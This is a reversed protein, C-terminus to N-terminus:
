GAVAPQEDDAAIWGEFERLMPGLHDRYHRWRGVSSAYIPQRVQWHSATMVMRETAHFTLCAPDWDLGLFDILRRSESELNAVLTEYDIELVPIPLVKRWHEMLRDVQRTRFACDALDDTWVLSGDRFHQFFCSLSVDRPDRRCVVIRARPFLVAIHGLCLINDPQKDIVRVAGGGLGRLHQVYAMSERRVSTRSWFAPHHSGNEFELATLIAFMETQEGAGFVLNHSAAIQEVLSTGSRPMGVIFVPEESPDGWGATAAFTQPDFMAIQRDVLDRFQKRDFIHGQANREVRLLRNALAYAEFAEDYDGQRDCVQGHAFGALARDEVPRSQDNLVTQAARKAADDDHRAGLNVLDHLAGALGPDLALAQRCAEASADFHGLAAECNALLLWLRADPITELVQRCLDAAAAADGTHLLCGAMGYRVRPNGPTLAEVQRFAALAEDFRKVEALSVAFGTLLRPDDPQLALAAEWAEAAQSHDGQRALGSALGIWAEVLGPAAETARRLVDIAGALDERMLLAYGLQVLAVPLTPDLAVAHEAAAVAADANGAARHAGALDALVAAIDPRLALSRTILAVAEAPEGRDLLLVGLLHLAAADDPNRRLVARYIAEAHEPRRAQHHSVAIAVAGAPDAALSDWDDDDEAPVLGALGAILPQLHRRYHRWRGVSSAYLPQRVQWHSATMVTRETEHFALCAPDWDLGLFDILRRSESELNEVLTEYQVELIRSPLVKRWHEMLREVERARFACDALDTPWTLGDERFYQFFCSLGVDRLDRRCVVIRARPFLVAIQGLYLINDPQKDIVRVADGGLSHLHQVHASAERRVSQRDWATAPRRAIQGGDLTAVVNFLEGREGAGFVLKHSAAIQEVLSTGSRPMGVIFVPLESPDGWGTTAAFSRADIEAILRDIRARFQNRDFVRGRAARDDRLLRNALAFADFADDYAGTRDYVKGLAFGAAVRDRVPRSQDYLLDRVADKAADGELRDGMAVLDHLADISRPELALTRRYAEEAADFRGRMAECNALMLWMRPWDPATELAQRCTDVAAATDGTHLLCHAIGYHVRQDSPALCAARRFTALAEEIQELEVLSGACDILLDANDPQLAIATQWAETASARDKVSALAKALAVWADISRPALETARRSVDIAAFSEQQMLLAYGLQVLPDPLEPDIEAARRAADIAAEANGTARHARALSTLAPAVDPRLALSRAILAASEAPQERDLLLVGLLHLATPDDPNRRLLARYIAEAYDLRKARHHLVAISLAAVPEAALADWDADGEIPAVGALGALLPRLHERYHRWRGISSTFLPQRVQWQSATMVARETTHFELCAPDWDLGLFEVLRRSESELDHVLDEYQVELMALPVVKRWHAMLREFAHSRMAIDALSTSWPVNAGFHRQYCSLGVDRLDRRCIIIRARPFLVAIHGLFQFNEPMKDIVRLADGGLERLKQLYASAERAIVDPNGGMPQPDAYGTGIRTLIERVDDLEGAGFVKPHSSLIQEVLTTGSRPMGVVFVPLDSADDPIAKDRFTRASFNTINAEVYADLVVPDFARNAVEMSAHVLRNAAAFASWAADYDGARDLLEGLSYGATSREDVTKGPDDLVRLLREVDPQVDAQHGARILAYRPEELDPDLAIAKRYCDAAEAFRGLAAKSLGSYLWLEAMEPAIQLARDCAAEAAAIDGAGSLATVLGLHVRGEMPALEMARRLLPLAEDYQRLECLVRGLKALCEVDDPQLRVARRLAAAAPPFDKLRMCAMAFHLQADASDPTLAIARELAERAGVADNLNLRASGLMFQATADNQNLAVAEGAAEASARFDGMLRHAASLEGLLASDGPKGAAARRLLSVAQRADRRALALEGLRHLAEANDPEREVVLRFASEASKTDGARVLSRADAVIQTVSLAAGDVAVLGLLGDLLPQIYPHYHRWRGVSSTYLKQRVQWFSATQVARETAHFSLCADDWDLGLFDILRRSEGELDGVLTEYHVETMRLPLVSRWYATLREIESTRAATDALDYTWTMGDRFRQFFCSLGIDRPDRRCIIVRANPFLVAILGLQLINDPLKDVVREASGGLARLRAVLAAAERRVVAQDWESPPRGPTDGELRGEIEFIDKREGAGYVQKHSALIQEVLTTGSRPMGVIFVPAESPNGWDKIAEFTAPVFAARIQDIGRRFQAISFRDGTTAFAEHALRNASAYTSFAAAYDGATDLLAGLAFGASVREDTPRSTDSLAAHLPGHAGAADTLKGIVALRSLAESSAPDRTLIRQYCTAADDFRGMLAYNDAQQLWVDPRDPALEVARSLAAVSGAFDEARRLAMGLAIHARAEDPWLAVARRCYNVADDFQKLEALATGLPLLTDFRDPALRDASRYAAAAAAYDKLRSQAHGLLVQADASDPALAAARTAAAAAGADDRLALLTRALQLHAEALDPNLEIARQGSCKAAAPDGAGYQARALNALAESFEPDVTVARSLVAISETLRGSDQLIVGLLNLADPHDPDQELVQRYLDEAEALRGAEHHALGEDIATAPDSAEIM